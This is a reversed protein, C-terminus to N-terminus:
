SPDILDAWAAFREVMALRRPEDIEYLDFESPSLDAVSRMQGAMIHRDLPLYEKTDGLALVEERTFVGSVVVTDIDVFDRPEARSYLASMKGAAADRLDLVPGVALQMPPFQRTDHGLQLDSQEGTLPDSVRVNLFLRGQTLITVALGNSELAAVLEDVAASFSEVSPERTFLDVDTSPRDGLGNASLAYGGALAFGYRSIVTLGVRALREHFPKV